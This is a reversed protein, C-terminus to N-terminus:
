LGPFMNAWQIGSRMAMPPENREVVRQSGSWPASVGERKRESGHGSQTVKRREKTQEEMEQESQATTEPVSKRASNDDWRAILRTGSLEAM